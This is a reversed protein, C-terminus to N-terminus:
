LKTQNHVTQECEDIFPDHMDVRSWAFCVEEVQEHPMAVIRAITFVMSDAIHCNDWSQIACNGGAAAQHSRGCAFGSHWGLAEISCM